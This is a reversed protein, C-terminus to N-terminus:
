TCGCSWGRAGRGLHGGTHGKQVSIRSGDLCLGCSITVARAVYGDFNSFVFNGPWLSAWSFSVM